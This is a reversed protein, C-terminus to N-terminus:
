IFPNEKLSEFMKDSRVIMDDLETFNLPCEFWEGITKYPEFYRKLSAEVKSYHKVDREYYLKLTDDNGTQLTKLRKLPDKSFGIKFRDRSENYIIYIRKM